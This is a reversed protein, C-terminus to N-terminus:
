TATGTVFAVPLSAHPGNACSVDASTDTPGRQLPSCNIRRVKVAVSWHPQDVLPVCCIWSYSTNAGVNTVIGLETTTSHPEHYPGLTVPMAVAFSEHSTVALKTIWYESAGAIPDTHPLPM